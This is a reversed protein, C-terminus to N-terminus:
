DYAIFWITCSKITGEEGIWFQNYDMRSYSLLM